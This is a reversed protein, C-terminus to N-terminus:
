FPQLLYKRLTEVLRVTQYSKHQVALHLASIGDETQQNASCGHQLLLEMFTVHGSKAVQVLPPALVSTPNINVYCGPLLIFVSGTLTIHFYLNQSVLIYRWHIYDSLLLLNCM